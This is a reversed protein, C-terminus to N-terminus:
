VTRVESEAEEPPRGGSLALSLLPHAPSGGPIHPLYTPSMSTLGDMMFVKKFSRFFNLIAIELKSDCRSQGGSSNMRLDLYEM